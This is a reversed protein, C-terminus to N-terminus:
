TRPTDRRIARRWGSSRTCSSCPPPRIAPASCWWSAPLDVPLSRVAQDAQGPRAYAIVGGRLAAAVDGGSGRGGQAQRHAKVALELPLTGDAQGLVDWLAGMAAVLAAASSGLGLKQGDQSLASSDVLPAGDPLRLDRERAYAALVNVAEAILPTAPQAGPVFRAVARRDVAAVVATGGHLVAYEGILFLKGPASFASM